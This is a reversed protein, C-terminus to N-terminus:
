SNWFYFILMPLYESCPWKNDYWSVLKVFNDNLAIGAKANFISSWLLIDGTRRILILKVM